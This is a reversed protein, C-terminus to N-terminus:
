RIGSVGQREVRSLQMRFHGAAETYSCRGQELAPRKDASHGQLLGLILSNLLPM